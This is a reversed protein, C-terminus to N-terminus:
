LNLPIRKHSYPILLELRQMELLKGLKDSQTRYQRSIDRNEERLVDMENRFCNVYDKEELLERTIADNKQKLRANDGNLKKIDKLLTQLSETERTDQKNNFTKGDVYERIENNGRRTALTSVSPKVDTFIYSYM